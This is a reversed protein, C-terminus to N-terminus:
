NDLDFLGDPTDVLVVDDEIDLVFTLPILAGTDLTLQDRVRCGVLEHVWLVDDDKIPAASLVRGRLREAGERTTRGEFRVLHREQHPRSEAVVLLGHGDHLETGPAVRELRDTTLTVVVEGKLGHAKGIRGIELLDVM